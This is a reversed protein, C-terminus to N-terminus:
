GATGEDVKRNDVTEDMPEELNGEVVADSRAITTNPHHDRLIRSTDDRGPEVSEAGLNSQMPDSETFRALREEATDDVILGSGDRTNPREDDQLLNVKLADVEEETGADLEDLRQGLDGEYIAPEDAGGTIVELRDLAADTAVDDSGTSAPTADDGAYVSSENLNVENSERQNAM